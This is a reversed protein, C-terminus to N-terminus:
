LRLDIHVLAIQQTQLALNGADFGDTLTQANKEEDDKEKKLRTKESTHQNWSPSGSLSFSGLFFVWGLTWSSWGLGVM